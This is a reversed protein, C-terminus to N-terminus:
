EIGCIDHHLLLLLRPILLTLRICQRPVMFGQLFTQALRGELHQSYSFIRGAPPVSHFTLPDDSENCSMGLAGDVDTDFKM